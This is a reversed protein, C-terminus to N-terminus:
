GSSDQTADKNPVAPKGMFRSMGYGSSRLTKSTSRSTPESNPLEAARPIGADAEAMYYPASLEAIRDKQEQQPQNYYPAGHGAFHEAEWRARAEAEFKERNRASRRRFFIIAVVGLILGVGGVGVGVGVGVRVGDDHTKKASAAASASAAARSSSADALAAPSSPPPYVPNSTVTVTGAAATAATPSSSSATSVPPFLDFALMLTEGPRPQQDCGANLAKVYNSLTKANPVNDLCKTCDDVIKGFAGNGDECYQYQITANTQLLRDVLASKASENPGSCVDNCQANAETRNNDPIAFVCWDFTFKMNFLVWYAENQNTKSDTATSNLECNLCDKFKRGPATSNPGDYEYDNCVVNKGVTFSNADDGPDSDNSISNDCLSSCPSNPTVEVARSLRLLLLSTALYVHHMAALHTLTLCNPLAAGVIDVTSLPNGPNVYYVTEVTGHSHM